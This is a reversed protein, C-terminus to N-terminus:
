GAAVTEGEPTGVNEAESEDDSGAEGADAEAAEVPPPAM